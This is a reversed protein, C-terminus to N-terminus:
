LRVKELDVLITIKGDSFSPKFVEREMLKKIAEQMEPTEFIEAEDAAGAQLCSLCTIAGIEALTLGSTALGAPLTIEDDNKLQLEM